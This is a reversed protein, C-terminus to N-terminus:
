DHSPGGLDDYPGTDEDVATNDSPMGQNGHLLYFNGNFQYENMDPSVLRATNTISGTDWAGMSGLEGYTGANIQFSTPDALQSGSAPPYAAGSAPMPNM